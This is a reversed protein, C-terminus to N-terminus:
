QQHKTENLTVSAYDFYKETVLENVKSVGWAIPLAIFVPVMVDSPYHVGLYVRSYSVLIAWPFLIYPLWKIKTGIAFLFYFSLAFVNMAHSSVFGYLGGHYDNVYHLMHQVNPDHSPRLRQVANKIVGSAVQDSILILVAILMLFPVSKKGLKKVVIFILFLYFPIWVFTDSIWWMISDLQPTHSGNISLLLRIDMFKLYEIM